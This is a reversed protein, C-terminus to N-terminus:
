RDYDKDALMLFQRQIDPNDHFVGSFKTTTVSSQRQQQGRLAMCGHSLKAMIAAGAPIFADNIMNMINGTLAEQTTFKQACDEAIRAITGIGAMSKGPIYAIHAIGAAPLMHHECFSILQIDKVLIFDEYSIDNAASNSYDAVNANYKFFEEYFELVRRPTDEMGSRDPNDGAWRILTRVAELAQEEGQKNIIKSKGM